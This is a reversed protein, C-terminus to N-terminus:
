LFSAGAGLAAGWPGGMAFGTAAGGLAQSAQSAQPAVQNTVTSGGQFKQALQALYDLPATASGQKANFIRTNDAIQRAYLDENKAGVGMLTRYPDMRAQYADQLQGTGNLVNQRQAAGANYLSGIADNRQNMGTTGMGFQNQVAADQRANQNNYDTFRTNGAFNGIAEGLKGAHSDSGYRGASSAMLNGANGIDQSGRKIMDELYPNNQRSAGSAVQNNYGFAQQQMANLGNGGAIGQLRGVQQDQLTNLGGDSVTANVRNYNNQFVPNSANAISSMGNMGQTTQQAYPTVQSTTNPAWAAKNGALSKGWGLIDNMMPMSKNTTASGPTENGSM